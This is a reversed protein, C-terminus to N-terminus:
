NTADASQGASRQRLALQLVALGALLCAVMTVFLGLLLGLAAHNHTGWTRRIVDLSAALTGFGAGFLLWAWAIPPPRRTRKRIEYIASLGFCVATLVALVETLLLRTIGM